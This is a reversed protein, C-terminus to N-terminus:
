IETYISCPKQCPVNSKGIQFIAVVSHNHVNFIIKKNQLSDDWIYLTLGVPFLELFTINEINCGRKLRRTFSEWSKSINRSFFVDWVSTNAQDGHLFRTFLLHYKPQWQSYRHVLAAYHSNNEFLSCSISVVMPFVNTLIISM